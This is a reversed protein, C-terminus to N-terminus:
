KLRGLIAALIVFCMAPLYGKQNREYLNQIRQEILSRIMSPNNNQSFVLNRFGEGEQVKAKRRINLSPNANLGLVQIDKLTNGDTSSIEGTSRNYEFKDECMKDTPNTLIEEDEKKPGCHYQNNKLSNIIWVRDGKKLNDLDYERAVMEYNTDEIYLEEIEQINIDFLEAIESKTEDLTSVVYVFDRSGGYCSAFLNDYDYVKEKNIKIYNDANDKKSKPVLHEIHSSNSHAIIRSGCYCCIIGQEKLLSEKIKKKDILNSRGDNELYDWVINGNISIDEYLTDLENKKYVTPNKGQHINSEEKKWDEIKQKIDNALHNNKDIYKM